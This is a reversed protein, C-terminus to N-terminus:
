TKTYCTNSCNLQINISIIVIYGLVFEKGNTQEIGYLNTGNNWKFIKLPKILKKLAIFQQDM